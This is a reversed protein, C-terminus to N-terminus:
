ARKGEAKGGGEEAKTRGGEGKQEVRATLKGLSLFGGAPSDVEYRCPGQLIVKAGSDYSIELLGSTLDCTRGLAVPMGAAFPHPDSCTCDRAGTIHGVFEPTPM